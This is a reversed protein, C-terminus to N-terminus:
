SSLCGSLQHGQLCPDSEVARPTGITKDLKQPLIYSFVSGVVIIDVLLDHVQTQHISGNTRSNDDAKAEPKGGREQDAM